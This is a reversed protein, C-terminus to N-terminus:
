DQTLMEIYKELEEKNEPNLSCLKHIMTETDVATQWTKNNEHANYKKKMIELYDVALTNCDTYLIRAYFIVM